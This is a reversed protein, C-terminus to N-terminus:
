GKMFTEDKCKMKANFHTELEYKELPEIRKLKTTPIAGHFGRKLSRGEYQDYSGQSQQFPEGEKMSANFHKRFEIMGDKCMMRADDLM